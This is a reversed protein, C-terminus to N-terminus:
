NVSTEAWFHEAELLVLLYFGYTLLGVDYCLLCHQINKAADTQKDAHKNTQTNTMVIVKLRTFVPHHFKPYTCQVFIKVSNSYPHVVLLFTINQPTTICSAFLLCLSTTRLFIANSADHTTSRRETVVNPFDACALHNLTIM